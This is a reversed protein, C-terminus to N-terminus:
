SLQKLLRSSYFSLCPLSPDTTLFRGYKHCRPVLLAPLHSAVDGMSVSTDAFVSLM